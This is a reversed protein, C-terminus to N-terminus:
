AAFSEVPALPICSLYYLINMHGTGRAGFAVFRRRLLAFIRCGKHAELRPVYCQAVVMRIVARDIMTVARVPVFPDGARSLRPVRTPWAATVHGGSRHGRLAQAGRHQAAANCSLSKDAWNQDLQLAMAAAGPWVPEDAHTSCDFQYLM